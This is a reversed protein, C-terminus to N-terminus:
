SSKTFREANFREFYYNYYDRILAEAIRRGGVLESLRKLCSDYWRFERIEEMTLPYNFRKWNEGDDLYEDLVNQLYWSAKRKPNLKSKIARHVVLGCYDSCYFSSYPGRYAKGCLLCQLEAM